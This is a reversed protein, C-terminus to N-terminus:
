KVVFMKESRKRTGKMKVFGMNEKSRQTKYPATLTRGQPM